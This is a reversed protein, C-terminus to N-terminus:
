GQQRFDVPLQVTAAAPKGDRIAPEFRWQRAANVAARDLSRDRTGSREVVRVDTPVGTSDVAIAVVVSGENGARLAERPYTPMPNGALPRPARDAVVPRARERNQGTAPARTAPPPTTDAPMTAVPANTDIPATAVRDQRTWWVLAAILAVALAAWLVPSTRQAPPPTPETGSVHPTHQTYTTM